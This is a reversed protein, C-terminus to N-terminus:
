RHGPLLLDDYSDILCVSPLRNRPKLRPFIPSIYKGGFNFIDAGSGVLDLIGGVDDLPVSDIPPASLAVLPVIVSLEADVNVVVLM